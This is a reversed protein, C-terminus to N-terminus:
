AAGSAPMSQILSTDKLKNWQQSSSLSYWFQYHACSICCLPQFYREGLYSACIFTQLQEFAGGIPIGNVTVWPVYTHAPKLSATEEAAKKQLEFAMQGVASACM